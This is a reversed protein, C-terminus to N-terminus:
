AREEKYLKEALRELYGDRSWQAATKFAAWRECWECKGGAHYHWPAASGNEDAIRDVLELMLERLQDAESPQPSQSAVAPVDVFTDCPVRGHTGSCACAPGACVRRTRM